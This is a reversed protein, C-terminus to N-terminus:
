LKRFQCGSPSTCLRGLRSAKSKLRCEETASTGAKDVCAGPERPVFSTLRCHCECTARAPEGVTWGASGPVLRYAKAPRHAKASFFTAGAAFAQQMTKRDDQGTVIIIPTTKNWSSARILRALELGHLGPMELDLFIGDFIEQAVIRAAKQSDSMARVEAKLSGFVESMLELSALDDEVVLLKLGAM